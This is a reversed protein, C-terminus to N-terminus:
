LKPRADGRRAPYEMISSSKDALREKTIWYPSPLGTQKKMADVSADDAMLLQAVAKSCGLIRPMGHGTFGATVFVGPKGPVPGVWPMSDSSWGMIGAWIHTVQAQSDEWGHFTRQMYGNFFEETGPILQSDDVNEHWNSQKSVVAADAGGVIISGDSRPILYDFHEPSYRIAYTNNLHPARRDSNPPVAIRCVVGKAPVIKDQLEPLLAPTYANSALVLKRALINGRPTKVVWREGTPSTKREDISEVPTNTQLNAGREISRRLLHCILKYPWLSGATFSFAAQAGKVGSVREARHPDSIMQVDNSFRFGKSKAEKFMDVVTDATKKDVIVDFARTFEFDCDIKENEILEKVDQAQKAEFYLMDEAAQQGHRKAQAAGYYVDPKLHGGNRGTAGSCAQRAELIVVSPKRESSSEELLYYAAAAGSYGSGIIVVDAEEPLTETTRHNALDSAASLWFSTMPNKHPPPM